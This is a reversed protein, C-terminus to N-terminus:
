WVGTTDYGRKELWGQLAALKTADSSWLTVGDGGDKVGLDSITQLSGLKTRGDRFARMLSPLTRLLRPDANYATFRYEAHAEKTLWKRAVLKAMVIRRESPADM